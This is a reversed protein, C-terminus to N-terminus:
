PYIQINEGEYFICLVHPFVLEAQILFFSVYERLIIFIDLDSMRIKGNTKIEDFKSDLPTIAIMSFEEWKGYYHVAPIGYDEVSSNDIAGMYSYMEFEHKIYKESPVFKIAVTKNNRLM